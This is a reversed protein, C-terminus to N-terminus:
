PVELLSIFAAALMGSLMSVAISLSSLWPLRRRESIGSLVGMVAASVATAALPAPSGSFTLLGKGSIFSGIYSGLYTSVLGILLGAIARSGFGSVTGEPSRGHLIRKLYRRGFLASLLTEWMICASMLLAITVFSSATMREPSLAIGLQEAAAAAVQTEYHLAGIVSLRLWPWPIGLAGSLAVVGFLIAFSPLFSFVASSVAAKKMKDASIGLAAGARWARIMFLISVAAIFLVISGCILYLTTSNLQDALNM